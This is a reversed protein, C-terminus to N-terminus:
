RGSSRAAQANSHVARGAAHLLLDPLVGALLDGVKEDDAVGFDALARDVHAPAAVLLLPRRRELREGILDQSLGRRALSDTHVRAAPESYLQTRYNPDADTRRRPSLTLDTPCVAGFTQKQSSHHVTAVSSSGLILPSIRARETRNIEALPSCSPIFCM